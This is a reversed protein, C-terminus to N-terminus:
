CTSEETRKSVNICCGHWDIVETLSDTEATGRSFRCSKTERVLTGSVASKLSFFSASGALTFCHCFKASLMTSFTAPLGQNRLEISQM